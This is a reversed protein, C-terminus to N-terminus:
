QSEVQQKLANLNEQIKDLSQRGAFERQKGTDLFAKAMVQTSNGQAQLHIEVLIPKQNAGKTPLPLSFQMVQDSDQVLHAGKQRMAKLVFPKVVEATRDITVSPKYSDVPSELVSACGGVLEMALGGGVLALILIAHRMMVIGQLFNHYNQIIYSNKLRRRNKFIKIEHRKLLRKAKSLFRNNNLDRCEM